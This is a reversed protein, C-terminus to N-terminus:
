NETTFRAIVEACRNVSQKRQYHDHAADAIAQLSADPIVGDQLALQVVREPSIYPLFAPKPIQRRELEVVIPVLAHAQYSAIVGSKEWVDPWYGVVGAISDAMLDSLQQEEMWGARTIEVGALMGSIYHSEGSGVDIVKEVGLARCVQELANRHDKYLRIRTVQQGFIVLQRSRRRLPRLDEPEGINSFIPIHILERHRTNLRELRRLYIPNSGFAVDTIGLLTRVANRQERRTWFARRWPMGSAYTEHFFTLLRMNEALEQMLKVFGAPRGNSAYAYPGYHLLVSSFNHQSRLEAIHERLAAPTAEAPYSITNPLIEQPDFPTKPRRYVVFHSPISHQKWFADGLRRAFDGMGDVSPKFGSVVQLIPKTAM